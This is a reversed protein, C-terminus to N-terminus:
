RAHDDGIRERSDAGYGLALIDLGILGAVVAILVFLADM